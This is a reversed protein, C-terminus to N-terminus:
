KALQYVALNFGTLTPCTKVLGLRAHQREKKICASSYVFSPPCHSLCVGSSLRWGGVHQKVSFPDNLLGLINEMM